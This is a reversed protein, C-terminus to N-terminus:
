ATASGPARAMRSTQTQTGACVAAFYRHFLHGASLEPHFTTALHGASSGSFVAVPSGQHRSLVVVGEGARIIKPARIFVGEELHSQGPVSETEAPLTVALQTIFSENQRGYDNRRITVDMVGLCPQAPNEVQRALLIAGACIGWLPHSGAFARIPEMLGTHGLLNLLTTSEGGPLILGQLGALDEPLRVPVMEAGAAALKERHPSVAGQLALVGIRM